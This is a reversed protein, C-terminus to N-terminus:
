INPKKSEVLHKIEENQERMERQQEETFRHSLQALLIENTFVRHQASLELFRHLRLLVEESEKAITGLQVKLPGFEAKAESSSLFRDVARTIQSRFLVAIVVAAIPWSIVVPGLVKVWELIEANTM